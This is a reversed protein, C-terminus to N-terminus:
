WGLDYPVRAGLFWINGIREAEFYAREDCGLARRADPAMWQRVAPRSRPAIEAFVPADADETVPAPDGHGTIRRVRVVAIKKRALTM